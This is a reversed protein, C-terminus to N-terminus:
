PSPPSNLKLYAEAQNNACYGIMAWDPLRNKTWQETCKELAKELPKGVSASAAKFKLMGEAQGKVCYGQMAFDNPWEGACHQKALELYDAKTDFPAAQAILLAIVFM